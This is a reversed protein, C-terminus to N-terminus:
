QRYYFEYIIIRPSIYGAKGQEIGVIPVIRRSIVGRNLIGIRYVRRTLEISVLHDTDVVLGLAVQLRSPLTYPLLRITLSPVRRGVLNAIQYYKVRTVNLGLRSALFNSLFISPGKRIELTIEGFAILNVKGVLHRM